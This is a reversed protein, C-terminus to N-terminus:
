VGQDVNWFRFDENPDRAVRELGTAKYGAHGAHEMAKHASTIPFGNTIIEASASPCIAGGFFALWLLLKMLMLNVVVTTLPM